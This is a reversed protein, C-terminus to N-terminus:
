ARAGVSETTMPAEGFLGDAATAFDEWGLGHRAGHTDVVHQLVAGAQPPTLDPRVDLVDGVTWVRAVAGFPVLLSHLDPLRTLTGAPDQVAVIRVADAASALASGFAARLRHDVDRRLADFAQGDEMTLTITTTLEITRPM